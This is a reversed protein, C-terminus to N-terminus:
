EIFSIAENLIKLYVLAMFLKFLDKSAIAFGKRPIVGHNNLSPRPVENM